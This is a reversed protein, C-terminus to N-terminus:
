SDGRDEAGKKEALSPRGSRIERLAQYCGRLCEVDVGASHDPPNIKWGKSILIQHIERLGPTHDLELIGEAYVELDFVRYHWPAYGILSRLFGADFSANAAVLQAGTLDRLLDGFLLSPGPRTRDSADLGREFYRSIELAKPDAFKLNHAPRHVRVFADEVAWGVETVQHLRPDLGTTEVDVFVRKLPTAV